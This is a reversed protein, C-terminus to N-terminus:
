REDDHVGTIDAQGAASPIYNTGLEIMIQAFDDPHLSTVFTPRGVSNGNNTQPLSIIIVHVNEGPNMAEVAACMADGLCPDVSLRRDEMM